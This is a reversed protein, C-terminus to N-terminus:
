KSKDDGLAFEWCRISFHTSPASPTMHTGSTKYSQLLTIGKNAQAPPLKTAM